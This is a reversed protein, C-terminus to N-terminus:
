VNRIVKEDEVHLPFTMTLNVGVQLRLQVLLM